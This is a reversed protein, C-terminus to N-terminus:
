LADRMANLANDLDALAADLQARLSDIRNKLDEGGEIAADVLEPLMARLEADAPRLGAMDPSAAMRLTKLREINM